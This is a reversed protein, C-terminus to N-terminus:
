TANESAEAPPLLLSLSFPAAAFPPADVDAGDEFTEFLAFKGDRLEYAELQRKSVHLLWYHPLGYTAYIRRKRGRDNKETSPTLIECVWGPVFDIFAVDPVFPMREQRWGALDPVVVHPGLHLESEDIFTWGGPGGRGFQFPGGLTNALAFSAAGNRAVPRPHTYLAGDLIEAVLHAPVAELDAYTAPRPALDSLLLDSM